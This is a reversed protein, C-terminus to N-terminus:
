RGVLASFKQAEYAIQVDGGAASKEKLPENKEVRLSIEIKDIFNEIDIPEIMLATRSPDLNLEASAFSTENPRNRDARARGTISATVTEDAGVPRSLPIMTRVYRRIKAKPKEGFELPAIDIENRYAKGDGDTYVFQHQGVFGEASDEYAAGRLANAAIESMSKGNNEVKSPADLDIAAGSKSGVRFNATVNTRDRSANIVYSQYVDASAVSTSEVTKASSCGSALIASFLLISLFLKM